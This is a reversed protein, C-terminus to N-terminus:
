FKFNKMNGEGRDERIEREKLIKDLFLGRDVDELLIVVYAHFM